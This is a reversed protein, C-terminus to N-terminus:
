KRLLPMRWTVNVRVGQRQRRDDLEPPLQVGGGFRSSMVFQHAELLLYRSLEFHVGAATTWNQYGNNGTATVGVTGTSLSGTLSLGLHRAVNGQLTANLANDVLPLMFGEVVRVSRNVGVGTSWTRGLRHTLSADGTMLLALGRETPALSSGSRVRVTTGRSLTVPRSFDLGVNLDNMRLPQGGALDSHTVRHTYGARLSVSRTLKRILTGGVDQSTMELGARSFTTRRVNYTTSIALRPGLTWGWEVDSQLALASLSANALDGHSHAEDLDSSVGPASLTGFEYFPSYAASQAARFEQRQGTAALDFKAEQRRSMVTQDTRRFVSRGELGTTTRKGRSRYALTTELDAAPAQPNSGSDARQEDESTGSLSVTLIATKTPTPVAHRAAPAPSAPPDTAPSQAAITQLMSVAVCGCGAWALLTRYRTSM